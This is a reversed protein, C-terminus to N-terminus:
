FSAKVRVYVQDAAGWLGFQSAGRGGLIFAGVSVDINDVPSYVIEPFAGYGIHDPWDSWRAVEVAGGLTLTVVERLYKQELRGVLYDHLQDAGREFFLGHAWQLNLYWGSPFTYDGGSVWTAYPRDELAVSRESV